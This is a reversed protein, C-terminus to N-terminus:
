FMHCTEGFLGQPVIATSCQGPATAAEPRVQVERMCSRAQVNGPGERPPPGIALLPANKQPRLGSPLKSHVCVGSCLAFSGRYAQRRAAFFGRGGRACCMCASKCAHVATHHYAHMRQHTACFVSFQATSAVKTERGEACNANKADNNNGRKASSMEKERSSLQTQM